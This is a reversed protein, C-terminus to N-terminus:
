AWGRGGDARGDVNISSSSPVAVVVGIDSSLMSSAVGETEGLDVGVVIVSSSNISDVVVGREM